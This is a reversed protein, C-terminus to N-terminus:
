SLMVASRTKCNHVNGLVPSTFDQIVWPFVPYQTLDNISRDAVSYCYFCIQRQFTIVCIVSSSFGHGWEVRLSVNDNESFM